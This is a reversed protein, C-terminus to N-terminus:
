QDDESSSFDPTDTATTAIIEPLKKIHENKPFTRVFNEFDSMTKSINYLECSGHVQKGSENQIIRVSFSELEDRSFKYRFM